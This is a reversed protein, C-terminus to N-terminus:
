VSTNRAIHGSHGKGEGDSNENRIKQERAFVFQAMFLVYIDM